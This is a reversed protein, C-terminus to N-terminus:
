RPVDTWAISKPRSHWRSTVRSKHIKCMPNTETDKLEEAFDIFSRRSWIKFYAVGLQRTIKLMAVASKEGNKKLGKALSNMLRAIRLLVSKGLDTVARPRTSCVNQLTGGEVSHILALEKSTIRAFCDFCEIVPVRAEPVDPERRM